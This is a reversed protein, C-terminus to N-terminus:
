NNETKQGFAALIQDIAATISGSGENELEIFEFNLNEFDTLDTGFRRIIEKVNPNQERSLQRILREKDSVKLRFIQLDFEPYGVLFKRLVYPTFVGINIKEESLEGYSTGYLWVNSHVELMQRDFIKNIITQEDVFYYDSGEIENERKPRSTYNIIKHFIEPHQLLSQNIITDKGSGAEGIIAAIKHM